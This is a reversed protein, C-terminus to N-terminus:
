YLRARNGEELSAAVAEVGDALRAHAVLTEALTPVDAVDPWAEPTWLGSRIMCKPCHALVRTVEVVLVHEPPRGNVALRDRLDDDRVIVARGSVRLTWSVSPVVFILGVDPNALVNRFTDYRRNGLRDPIALTTDNLVQVFGPEDGKPSVDCNGDADATGILLYPSKGIFEIALPSLRPAEKEMIASSQAGNAAHVEDITTVQHARLRTMLDHAIDTAM